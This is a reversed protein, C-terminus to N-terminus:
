KTCIEADLLERVKKLLDSPTIPKLIFNIGPDLLGEKSIIDETYGSVFIAKISPNIMLVEQYAEKGKKKPMICDLIILQVKDRNKSYKEVADQGDVAEIVSYGYNGLITSCLRRLAADDEAVLIVESGGRVPLREEERREEKVVGRSLPLYIRFTTGKGPKDSVDIYGDHQKVIGYVMSLGLGTGKGQEKTTFFPEFIKEKIEAPIGHGTDSVSLLAYKGAKGFGHTKIFADDMDTTETRIAIQGGTPMADRANTVLNMLIQEIQGKDALVTLEDNACTTMIEIDERILRLLFKEFNSVIDNLDNPKPNIIQKRSFALLSQTLSTARDAAELIQDVNGRLLDDPPLKRLTLDAYGVIATLINNFDHAVGGALKGIAELKQSQLLQEELRKSDTVDRVVHILGTLQNNKDFRPLAKIEIYKKLHPEFRQTVTPNGSKMVECSPCGVLPRDTGHYSMYCPQKLMAPFSMGLMESAAKNARIIHFSNDHITIAENISDFSDEWDTKAEILLKQMKKREAIEELLKTNTTELEAVWKKLEDYLSANKMATSAQNAVTAFLTIDERTFANGSLKEGLVLIFALSKDLFIPVAVEGAFPHLEGAIARSLDEDEAGSLEEKVCIGKNKLFSCLRSSKPLRIGQDGEASLDGAPAKEPVPLLATDDSVSVHRAYVTRFSDDGASLLCSSKVRLAEFLTDVLRASLQQLDISSSLEDSINRVTAAFDYTSKQFGQDLLAQIWRKIPTFLFAIVLAATITFPFSSTGIFASFLKSLTVVLVVFLGTLLGASLSYILSKKVIIQFDMLRYQFIAISLVINYMVIGFNGFPYLMDIRFIPLLTATGGIFGILFGYIIYSIQLRQYGKTTRYFNILKSYSLVIFFLYLAVCITYPFSADLYFLGFVYRTKHFVYDTGIGLATALFAQVYGFTLLRKDSKETILSALHYFLPAIFFSGAHAIQWGLIAQKDTYSIGVLVTGFGWVACAINFFLLLRHIRTKGFLLALVALCVSSIGVSLGAIAFLNM